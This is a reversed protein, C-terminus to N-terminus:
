KCLSVGGLILGVVGLAISIWAMHAPVHIAPDRARSYWWVRQFWNQKTLEFDVTQNPDVKLEHRAEKSLWIEGQKNHPLVVVRIFNDGNSIKFVDFRRADYDKLNNIRVINRAADELQAKVVTLTKNVM